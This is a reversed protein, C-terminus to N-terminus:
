TNHVYYHIIGHDICDAIYTRIVERLDDKGFVDEADAFARYYELSGPNLKVLHDPCFNFGTRLHTYVRKVRFDHNLVWSSM